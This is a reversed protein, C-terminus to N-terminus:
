LINNGMFYLEMGLVFIMALNFLIFVMRIKKNKYVILYGKFGIVYIFFTNWAVIMLVSMYFHEIKYIAVFISIIILIVALILSQVLVSRFSKM